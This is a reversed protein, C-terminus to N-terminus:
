KLLSEGFLDTEAEEVTADNAAVKRAPPMQFHDLYLGHCPFSSQSYRRLWSHVSWNGPAKKRKSFGLMIYLITKNKTQQLKRLGVISLNNATSKHTSPHHSNM